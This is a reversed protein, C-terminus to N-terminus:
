ETQKEVTEVPTSTNADVTALTKAQENLLRCITDLTKDRWEQKQGQRESYAKM